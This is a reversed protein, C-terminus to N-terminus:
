GVEVVWGEVDLAMWGGRGSREELGLLGVEGRGKEEIVGLAEVVLVFFAWVGGRGVYGERLGLMEVGVRGVM